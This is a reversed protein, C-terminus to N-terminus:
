SLLLYILALELLKDNCKSTSLLWLIAFLVIADNDMGFSFPESHEPPCETKCLPQPETEEYIPKLAPESHEPAAEPPRHEPSFPKPERRIPASFNNSANYYNTVM